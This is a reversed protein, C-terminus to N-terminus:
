YEDPALEGKEMLYDKIDDSLCYGDCETGDYVVTQELLNLVFCSDKQKDLLSLCAKLLIMARDEDTNGEILKLDQRNM